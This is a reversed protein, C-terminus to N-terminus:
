VLREFPDRDVLPPGLIELLLVAERLSSTSHRLDHILDGSLGLTSRAPRKIRRKKGATAPMPPRKKRAPVPVEDEIIELENEAARAAAVVRSRAAQARAINARREAERREAERQARLQANRNVSTQGGSPEAAPQPRARRQPQAAPSTANQQEARKKLQELWQQLDGQGPM